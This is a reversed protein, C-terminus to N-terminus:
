PAAPLVVTFCAGQGPASVVRVTAQLADATQRVIWLGIGLGESAADAQRFAGFLDEVQSDDLGIGTDVVDIHVTDDRLGSVIRVSGGAPTYKIANSVLNGLLTELLGAHTLAVAHSVETALTVGKRDAARQWAEQVSEVVGSVHVPGLVPQAGGHSGSAAAVLEGFTADITLLESAAQDLHRIQEASAQARAKTMSYMASRLPAKLDHGATALMRARHQGVSNAAALMKRLELQVMVQRALARLTDVQTQDLVRPVTDLVCVTGLPLGDATKLLAGAYFRLGPDSVVLPNSAFRPDTTTDPVELFDHQLIAHACISTALPTERVGLGIESKFWQRDADILNVVSIPTGCVASAIRTIDDFASERPTDLIDYAHLAGLRRSEEHAPLKPAPHHM